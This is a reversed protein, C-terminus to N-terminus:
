PNGGSRAAPIATEAVTPASAAAGTTLRIMKQQKELALAV